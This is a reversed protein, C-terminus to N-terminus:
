MKMRSIKAPMIARLELVSSSMSLQTMVIYLIKLDALLQSLVSQDVHIM